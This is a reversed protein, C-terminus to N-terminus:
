VTLPLTKIMKVNMVKMKEHNENAFVNLIAAFHRTDIVTSSNEKVIAEPSPATKRYVEKLPTYLLNLLFHGRSRKFCQYRREM